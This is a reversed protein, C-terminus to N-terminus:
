KLNIVYYYQGYYGPYFGELLLSGESNRLIDMFQKKNKVSKGNAKLIVFGEQMKTSEKIKGKGISEVLIGSNISYQAREDATLEKLRIGLKNFIYEADNKVIETTGERNKLVVPVNISKNNRIIELNIQDGPRFQSLQELLQSQSKIEKNNVKSIVDNPKLHADKAAGNPAVNVIYVGQTRDIGLDQASQADLEALQVGLFARQVVGFKILDETVKAVINSPIAFSYGAFAGTPSAIASNVGILDGNLNVLAGGSNGPNVAADTQIFSEIATREKLININRAKASVIGATVTSSLNFPNGVALVWDGVNIDDSNAFQLYPLNQADIKLVALDTSPDTGIVKAKFSKNDNTVVELEDADEIVHNNTVIYGDSSIIVGSGSALRLEQKNQPVRSYREGGLGFLEALPDYYKQYGYVLHNVVSASKIHVVAHVSKEAAQSFDVAGAAMYKKSNNTFKAPVTYQAPTNQPHSDKQLYFNIGLSIASGLIAALILNGIKKM